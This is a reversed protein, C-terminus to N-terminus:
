NYDYYVEKRLLIKPGVVLSGEFLSKKYVGGIGFNDPKFLYGYVPAIIREIKFGRIKEEFIRVNLIGQAIESEIKNINKVETKGFGKTKLAGMYFITGNSLYSIDNDEPVFIKARIKKGRKPKLYETFLPLKSVRFYKDTVSYTFEEIEYTDEEFIGVAVVEVGLFHKFAGEITSSPITTLCPRFVGGKVREGIIISDIDVIIEWFKERSNM